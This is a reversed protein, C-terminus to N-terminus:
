VVKETTMALSVVAYMLNDFLNESMQAESSVIMRGDVSDSQQLLLQYEIYSEVTLNM